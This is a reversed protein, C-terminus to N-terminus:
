GFFSPLRTRVRGAVKLLGWTMRPQCEFALHARFTIFTKNVNIKTMYSVSLLLGNM